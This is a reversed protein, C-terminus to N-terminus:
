RNNFIKRVDDPKKERTFDQLDEPEDLPVFEKKPENFLKVETLDRAKILLELQTIHKYHLYSITSFGAVVVILSFVLEM